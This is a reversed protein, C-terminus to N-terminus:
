LVLGWFNPELASILEKDVNILIARYKAVLDSPSMGRYGWRSTNTNMDLEKDRKEVTSLASANQDVQNTNEFSRKKEDDTAVTHTNSEIDTTGEYDRVQGTTVNKTLDETSDTVVNEDFVTDETTDITETQKEVTNRTGKDHETWTKYDDYPPGNNTNNWDPYDRRTKLNEAEEDTRTERERDSHGKVNKDSHTDKNIHGIINQTTDEVTDTDTENIDIQNSVFDTTSEHEQNVDHDYATRANRDLIGKLVSGFDTNTIQSDCRKHSETFYENSLPDFEWLTTKYKENIVTWELLFNTKFKHHWVEPMSTGIRRYVYKDIIMQEIIPRYSEDFIPYDFDFLPYGFDLYEKLTMPQSDLEPLCRHLYYPM